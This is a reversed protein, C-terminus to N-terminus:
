KKKKGKPELAVRIKKVLNYLAGKIEDGIQNWDVEEEVKEIKLKIKKEYDSRKEEEEMENMKDFYKKKKFVIIYGALLIVVLVVFYVVDAFQNLARYIGTEFLFDFFAFIKFIFTVIMMGSVAKFVPAAVSFPYVLLFILEGIFSILSILILYLMNADLFYIWKEYIKIGVYPIALNALYVLIVLLSIGFASSFVTWLLGRKKGFM